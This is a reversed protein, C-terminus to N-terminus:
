HDGHPKGHVGKGDGNGAYTTFNGGKHEANEHFHINCLNLQSRNPATGFVRQNVGYSQDIDRPSQPGFGKGDTNGPPEIALASQQQTKLTLDNM